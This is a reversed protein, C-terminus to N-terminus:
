ALAMAIIINIIILDIFLIYEFIIARAAMRPFTEATWILAM